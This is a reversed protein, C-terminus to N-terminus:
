DSVCTCNKEKAAGATLAGAKSFAKTFGEPRWTLLMEVEIFGAM